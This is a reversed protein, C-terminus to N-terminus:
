RSLLKREPFLEKRLLNIGGIRDSSKQSEKELESGTYILHRFCYGCSNAEEVPSKHGNLNCEIYREGLKRDVYCEM